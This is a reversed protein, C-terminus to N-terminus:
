PQRLRSACEVSGMRATLYKKFDKKLKRSRKEEFQKLYSIKKFRKIDGQCRPPMKPLKINLAVIIKLKNETQKYNRCLAYKNAEKNLFYTLKTNVFPFYIM